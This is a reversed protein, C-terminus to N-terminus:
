LHYREKTVTGVTIAKVKDQNIRVTNIKSKSVYNPEVTIRDDSIKDRLLDIVTKDFFSDDDPEAYVFKIAVFLFSLFFIFRMPKM